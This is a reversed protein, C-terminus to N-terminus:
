NFFSSAQSLTAPKGIDILELGPQEIGKVDLERELSLFYDMVSFKGKGMIKKMEEVAERNMVYMGSFALEREDPRKGSLRKWVDDKLNHWGCLTMSKDFSLKRSSNRDSVLLFSGEASNGAKEMMSGLNANSLIDVNHFLVPSSDDAFLLPSAKVIGGGTDLLEETEDSISIRVGFDKSKLFDKIQNGFHHVNVFLNNFGQEKLTVIVRELMPVGGVEVLAKPITDTIPKLRTGKGAALIMAKM